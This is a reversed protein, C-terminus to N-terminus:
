SSTSMVRLQSSVTEDAENIEIVDYNESAVEGIKLVQVRATTSSDEKGVERGSHGVTTSSEEANSTIETM